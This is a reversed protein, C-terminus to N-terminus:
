RILVLSKVYSFNILLKKTMANNYNNSCKQATGKKKGLFLYFFLHLGHDLKSPMLCEIIYDHSLMIQNLQTYDQM